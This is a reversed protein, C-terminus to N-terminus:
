IRRKKKEEYLEVAENITYAKKRSMFDILDSIVDVKWYESNLILFYPATIEKYQQNCQVVTPPEGKYFGYTSRLFLFRRLSHKKNHKVIDQQIKEWKMANHIDMEYFTILMSIRELVNISIERIHNRNKEIEDFNM